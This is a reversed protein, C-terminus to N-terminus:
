ARLEKNCPPTTWTGSRGTPGGQWRPGMFGGIMGQMDRMMAEPDEPAHNRPGHGTPGGFITSPVRYTRRILVNGGPGRTIEEEIDAEEPDSDGGGGAWPNHDHLGQIEPPIPPPSSQAWPRPDNEPSVQLSANAASCDGRAYCFFPM